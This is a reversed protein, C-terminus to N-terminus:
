QVVHATSMRTAINVCSTLRMIQLGSGSYDYGFFFQMLYFEKMIMIMMMIVYKM